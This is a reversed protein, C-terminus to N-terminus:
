TIISDLIRRMDIYSNTALNSSQNHSQTPIRCATQVTWIISIFIGYSNIQSLHSKNSKLM